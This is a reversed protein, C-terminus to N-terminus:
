SIESDGFALVGGEEPSLFFFFLGPHYLNEASQETVLNLLFKDWAVLRVLDSEAEM